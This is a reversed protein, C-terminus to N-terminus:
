GPLAARRPGYTLRRLLTEAPGRYGRRGSEAAVLLIVLWAGFGVLALQGPRAREGLGLTWAPLMAVFAVSQALYCSLSRQGCARLAAITPGPTATRDSIQVALLGFLAAYGVGGAYGSLTHLSGALMAAPIPPSNLLGTIVLAYPLGGLVALSLGGVAARRLLARHREPEDLLRRRAAWAGLAVAGFVGFIQTLFGLTLWEVSRAALAQLPDPMAMSPLVAAGTAALASTSALLTIITVGVWATVVLGRDSGHVLLGAMVVALLGYAGVIDGAWLLVGHALGIVIMWAGRRRVLRTVAAVPLGISARRRALQVVGYGFLLGFLPYARGHVLTAQVLVVVTDLVSPEPPRGYLYFQVNALAILLLMGGRALDPALARAGLPVAGPDASM